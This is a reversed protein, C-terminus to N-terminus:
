KENELAEKSLVTLFILESVRKKLACGSAPFGSEPLIVLITSQVTSVRYFFAFNIFRQLYIIM